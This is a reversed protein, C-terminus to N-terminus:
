EENPTVSQFKTASPKVKKTIVVPQKVEELKIVSKAQL